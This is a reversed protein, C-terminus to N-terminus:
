GCIVIVSPSLRSQRYAFDFCIAIDGKSALEMAGPPLYDGTCAYLWKLMVAPVALAHGQAALRKLLLLEVHFM